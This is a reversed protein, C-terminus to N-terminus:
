SAFRWMALGCATLFAPADRRLKRDQVQEGVDMGDFPNALLCPVSIAQTVVDNLKPLSAAGGSLLVYDVKNYPTSNYFFQLAAQLEQALREMFPQLVVHGYDDPLQGKVKKHEAEEQTMGYLRAIHQTLQLGGFPQEREFLVEGNRLVYMHTTSGGVHALMVLADRGRNPLNAILRQAAAQAAFSAVDLVELNLGAASMLAMMDDVKERRAAVILVDEDGASTRSPGMVYYDLSVEDLAFPIYQGAEEEVQREFEEQRLGEPLVVKKAIVSSAPLAAVVNKIKTGSKRILRQVIEVVREFQEITGDSAIAGPPVMEMACRELIWKGSANRNLEVLRISSSGVDLGLTASKKSQLFSLLDLKVGM